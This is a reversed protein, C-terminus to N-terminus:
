CYGTKLLTAAIDTGIEDPNGTWRNQQYKIDLFNMLETKNQDIISM